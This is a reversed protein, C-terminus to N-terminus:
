GWVLRQWEELDLAAGLFAASVLAVLVVITIAIALNAAWEGRQHVAPRSASARRIQQKALFGLILGFPVFVSLWPAALALRNFPPRQSSNPGRHRRRVRRALIGRVVWGLARPRGARSPMLCWVALAASVAVYVLVWGAVSLAPSLSSSGEQGTRTLVAVPATLWVSVGLLATAVVIAVVTVWDNALANMYIGFTTGYVVVTVIMAIVVLGIRQSSQLGPVSLASAIAAGVPTVLLAAWQVVITRRSVDATQDGVVRLGQLADRAVRARWVRGLETPAFDPDSAVGADAAVLAVLMGVLVPGFLRVVDLIEPGSLLVPILVYFALTFSGLVLLRAVDCLFRRRALATAPKTEAESPTRVALQLAVALAALISFGATLVSTPLEALVIQPATPAAADEASRAASVSSMWAVLYIFVSGFGGILAGQLMAKQIRARYESYEADVESATPRASVDAAVKKRWWGFMAGGATEIGIAGRPLTAFGASM